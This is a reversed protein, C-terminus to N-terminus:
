GEEDVEFPTPLIFETTLGIETADLAIATMRGDGSLDTVQVDAEYASGDPTRVFVPGTYKALKRAMAIEDQQDLYIMDSALSATRKVNKNWYGNVDGNLHSRIDVDKEYTDAISLNYPLELTGEAWDFRMNKGEALYEFDAFAVDGDLTRIAIRYHLTLEDGFPAFEDTATYILPFGEGILYAGDGTMRYIDYMDTVAAGTPMTLAIEVAQHHTGEDDTVDVPTLTIFDTQSQEYWGLASPNETGTEDEVVSYEQTSSDYTYYNKEEDVTTDASLTYTYVPYLDPAQHAWDISFPTVVEESRLGTTRDIATIAVQYECGDWFDLGSPLTVTTTFDDNSETWIPSYVASHITDGETQRRMGEPFQGSAGTSSVIVVLDCLASATVGFSMPQVTLPSTVNVSIEPNEVITVTHSESVVYGSGTSAQVTFTITNNTAFRLLREASIQTAGISGTGNALVTKNSAVIQWKKQMDGGSFSWYVPLYSGIAVYRDCSAVISEPEQSTYCTMVNSYPSYTTANDGELYRRAKIWYKTSEELDKITITASSRYTVGGSTKSGESWTFTHEEPGKTSKWADSADAWTLETGTSDDTGDKNWGLVVVISKGDTGPSVSLITIKDDAATPAPSYLTSVQVYNSYRYLVDESLHWSKVRVWTRNGTDPSIESVGIALATCSADDVIDSSTWNANAPIASASSYSVNALYELKVRDVPHEKTSNTKIKVTAKGSSSRSSVDVGLITTQAPYGVYFTKTVHKSDGAFGRSWAEVTIQSYQAYTYQQYDTVNYTLTTSTSTSSTNHPTTTKGTRTNKVTMKYRTDYREYKDTGANTTISVSVVGTETNFSFSGISPARPTEFSYTVNAPLGLGRSNVPTVTISAGFLKPKGSLPYFKDRAYTTSGLKVNNLNISDATTSMSKSKYGSYMNNSVILDWYVSLSTARRCNKADTMSSPVSWSANMAYGSGRVLKLNAVSLNPPFITETKTYKWLPTTWNGAKTATYVHGALTNLYTM